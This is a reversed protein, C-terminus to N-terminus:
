KINEVTVTVDKDGPTLTCGDTTLTCGGWSVGMPVWENREADFAQGRLTVLDGSRVPTTCTNRCEIGAPSVVIRQNQGYPSPFAVTLNVTPQQVTYTRAATAPKHEGDNAIVTLTHTGPAAPLQDGSRITLDPQDSTTVTGVCTLPKDGVTCAFEARPVASPAFIADAGPATITATVTVDRPPTTTITYRVVKPRSTNGATDTATVRLLHSGPKVPLSAGSAISKGDVSGDCSKVRVNDHCSFRAVVHTKERYRADPKPETITVSPARRDGGTAHTRTTTPEATARDSANEPDSGSGGGAIAVVGGVALAAAVGAGILLARGHPGPPQPEHEDDPPPGPPGLIFELNHRTAEAGAEDRLAERLDLANRLATVAADVNGTVYARTGIHHLAWAEGARDGVREAAALVRDLVEAWAGWRRAYIAAPAIARGLEVTIRDGDKESAGALVALAAPLEDAADEPSATRAFETLHKAVLEPRGKVGAVAGALRYRPSGSQVYGEKELRQLRSGADPLATLARLREAALTAGCAGALADILARDAPELADLLLRRLEGEPDAALAAVLTPLPLAARVSLGAAQWLRRPNGAVSEILREAARRASEDLPGTRRVVLELADATDFGVLGVSTAQGGWDADTRSALVVGCERLEERIRRAAPAAKDGGDVVVLARVDKFAAMRQERDAVVQRADYLEHFVAQLVDDADRGEGDVWVVGDPAQAGITARLVYSKGVGENGVVNVATRDGIAGAVQAIATERDIRDADAAPPRNRPRERPVCRPAAHEIARALLLVDDSPADAGVVLDGTWVVNHSSNILAVAREGSASATPRAAM